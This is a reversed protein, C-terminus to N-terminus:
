VVKELVIIGVYEPGIPTPQGAELVLFGSVGTPGTPGQPGERVVLTNITSPAVIRLTVDPPNEVRVEGGDFLDPSM